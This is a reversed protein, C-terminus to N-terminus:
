RATTPTGESTVFPHHAFAAYIYTDNADNIEDSGGDRVKFGNSLMDIRVEQSNASGQGRKGQAYNRNAYLSQTDGAPNYARRQNDFMAWSSYDTGQDLRKILVFAPQFGLYVYPGDAVSTGVYKGFKSYGQVGIWAYGVFTDNPQNVDAQEGTKIITSTPAENRWWTSAAVSGNTHNLRLYYNQPTTAHMDKHYVGWNRSGGNRRKIMFFEPVAGLGHGIDLPEIPDKGTYTFISFKATSNVQTVSTLDGDTNNATTGGNAKWQWAVFESNNENWFDDNTGGENFTFGDTNFSTLQGYTTSIGEQVTSSPKLNFETGTGRTSDYLEHDTGASTLNKSWVVDPKMSSNGTNTISRPATTNGTWTVTQFHASPDDITTYDAM